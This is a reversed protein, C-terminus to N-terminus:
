ATRRVDILCQADGRMMCEPQEIEVTEKLQLAVGKIIGIAVGCLHRSSTYQMIVQDPRPRTAVLRPPQAGPTKIRVARHVMQETKELLDLTRWTPNIQADYLRLLEPAIFVGFAEQLQAMPMGTLRSGAEVLSQLQDDPYVQNPLFITEKGAGSQELLKNWTEAGAAQVVFRKLEAFILGHM